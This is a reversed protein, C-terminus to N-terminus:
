ELAKSIAAKVVDQQATNEHLFGHDSQTKKSHVLEDNIKVEFNGTTGPDKL